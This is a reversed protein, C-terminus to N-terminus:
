DLTYTGALSGYHYGAAVVIESIGPTFNIGQGESDSYYAVGDDDFEAFGSIGSPNLSFNFGNSNYNSITLNETSGAELTATYTGNYSPQNKTEGKTEPTNNSNSKDQSQKKTEPVTSANKKENDAQKKTEKIQEKTEQKQEKAKETEHKTEKPTLQTTEAELSETTENKQKGCSVLTVSLLCISVVLGINIKKFKM